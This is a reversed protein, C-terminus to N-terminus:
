KSIIDGKEIEGRQIGKLLIGVYDGQKASELLKGSKDIGAITTQRKKQTNVNLINVKDRIRIEGAEITGLAITGRGTITFLEEVVMRFGTENLNNSFTTDNSTEYENHNNRNEQESIVIEKNKFLKKFFM